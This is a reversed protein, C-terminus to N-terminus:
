SVVRLVDRPDGSPQKTAKAPKRKREAEDGKAVEWQLRARDVPSLGFRAEQLRIEPMLKSDGTVNFENILRALRTLGHVDADLYEGAMPSAWVDRWWDLTLRHWVVGTIKPLTPAKVTVGIDLTAAGSKRNRRQRLQDPKPAPGRGAM